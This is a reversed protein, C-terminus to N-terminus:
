LESSENEFSAGDGAAASAARAATGVADPSASAIGSTCPSPLASVAVSPREALRGAASTLLGSVDNLTSLSAYSSAARLAGASSATAAAPPQAPPQFRSVEPSISPNSADSVILMPPPLRPAARSPNLTAPARNPIALQPQPGGGGALAASEGM